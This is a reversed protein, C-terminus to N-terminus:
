PVYLYDQIFIAVWLRIRRVEIESPNRKDRLTEFTRHIDLEYALDM